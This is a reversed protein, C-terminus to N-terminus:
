SISSILTQSTIENIEQDCRIISNTVTRREIM